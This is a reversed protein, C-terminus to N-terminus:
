VIIKIGLLFPLLLVFHFAVIFLVMKQKYRLHFEKCLVAFFKCFCVMFSITENDPKFASEHDMYAVRLSLLMISM